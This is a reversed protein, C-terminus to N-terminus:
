SIPSNIFLFIYGTTSRRTSLDGGWDADAYGILSPKNDQFLLGYDPYGKLYSFLKNLLNEHQPSPNAMFRALLNIYFALDPRTKDGLYILSGIKQQYDLIAEKSAIETFPEVKIGTPIPIKPTTKSNKAFKALVKETYTKQHM